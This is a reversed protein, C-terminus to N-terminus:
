HVPFTVTKGNARRVRLETETRVAEWKGVVELVLEERWDLDEGRLLAVLSRGDVKGTTVGAWEAITPALDINAVLQDVVRGREIGPGTIFMPVRTDTDQPQGKGERPTLHFGNDSTVIVYTNPPVAAMVRELMDLGSLMLRYRDPVPYGHTAAQRHREAPDYPRHPTHPTLLLFFPSRAEGIFDVAADALVDTQYGQAEEVLGDVNLLYNAYSQRQWIATWRDWGPPIDSAPSEYGYGNLYKGVLATTYGRQQLWVPLTCSELGLEIARQQGGSSGFNSHVGHNHAYQGTLLSVRSPCCLPTTVFAHSFVTGRAALEQWGPLQDALAIDLDDFYVVVVNPGETDALPSVRCPGTAIARAVLTGALLVAALATLWAM